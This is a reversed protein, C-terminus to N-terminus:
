SAENAAVGPGLAAHPYKQGQASKGWQVSQPGRQELLAELFRHKVGPSDSPIAYWRLLKRSPSPGAEHRRQIVM